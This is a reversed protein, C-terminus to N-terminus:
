KKLSELYKYFEGHTIAQNSTKGLRNKCIKGHEILLNRNEETQAWNYKELIYNIEHEQSFNVYDWDNYSM